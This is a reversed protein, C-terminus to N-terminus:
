IGVEVKDLLEDIDCVSNAVISMQRMIELLLDVLRHLVSNNRGTDDLPELVGLTAIVIQFIM